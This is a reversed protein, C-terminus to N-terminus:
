VIIINLEDPWSKSLRGIACVFECRPGFRLNIGVREILGGQGARRDSWAIGRM